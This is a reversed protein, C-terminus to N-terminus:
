LRARLEVHKRSFKRAWKELGMVGSGGDRPSARSRGRARRPALRVAPCAKVPLKKGLDGLSLINVWVFAGYSEELFM